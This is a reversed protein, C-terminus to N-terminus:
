SVTNCALNLPQSLSLEACVTDRHQASIIAVQWYKSLYCVSLARARRTQHDRFTLRVTGVTASRESNEM